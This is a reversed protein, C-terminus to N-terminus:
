HVNTEEEHIRDFIQGRCNRTGHPAFKPAHVNGVVVDEHIAPTFLMLPFDEECDRCRFRGGHAYDPITM